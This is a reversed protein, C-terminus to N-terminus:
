GFVMSGADETPCRKTEMLAVRSSPKERKRVNGFIALWIEGM